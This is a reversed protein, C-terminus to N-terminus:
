FNVDGAGAWEMSKKAAINMIMFVGGFLVLGRTVWDMFSSTWAVNILTPPRWYAM